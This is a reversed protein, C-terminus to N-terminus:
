KKRFIASVESFKGGSSGPYIGTWLNLIDGDLKLHSTGSIGYEYIDSKLFMHSIYIWSTHYEPFDPVEYSHTLKFYNSDVTSKIRSSVQGEGSDYETVIKGTQSDYTKVKGEYYM